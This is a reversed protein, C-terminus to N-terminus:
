ADIVMKIKKQELQAATIVEVASTVQSVPLPTKTASIVIEETQIPKDDTQPKGEETKSQADEAKVPNPNDQAHVLSWGLLLQCLTIGLGAIGLARVRSSWM